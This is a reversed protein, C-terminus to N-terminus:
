CVVKLSFNKTLSLCQYPKEGSHTKKHQLLGSKRFFKKSCDSCKFKFSGHVRSHLKMKQKTAFSKSFVLCHFNLSKQHLQMHSAAICASSFLQMRSLIRYFQM